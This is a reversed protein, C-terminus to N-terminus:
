RDEPPIVIILGRGAPGNGEILYPYRGSPAGEFTLVYRSERNILPPSATQDTSELFSWQARTVSDAEFIVEHILWDTTVFEVYSGPEISIAVPDARETTGAPSSGTLAVRYVRDQVTLGLEAQLIEDPLTDPDPLPDCSGALLLAAGLILRRLGGSRDWV